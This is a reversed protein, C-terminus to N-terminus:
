YLFNYVGRGSFDGGVQFAGTKGGQIGINGGANGFHTGTYATGIYQRRNPEELETEKFFPGFLQIFNVKLNLLIKQLIYQFRTVTSYVFLVVTMIIITCLLCSILIDYIKRLVLLQVCRPRLLRRWSSFGRDKRGTYWYERWCQWFTHRYLCSILIDYLKRLVFIQFQNTMKAM